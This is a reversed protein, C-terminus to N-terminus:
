HFPIWAVQRLSTLNSALVGQEGVVYLVDGIVLSRELGFYDTAAPPHVSGVREIAGDDSVHYVAVDSTSSNERYMPVVILRDNAWWLFAHHDDEAPSVADNEYLRSRLTPTAPTSVDFVSLQEGLPHAMANVRRGLGFLLGNGLPHLYASYGTVELHSVERPRTPDSLDLVYLPDIQRFTVVYGIDDLFRVGYIREGRGLGRVQGVQVLAHGVPRLVTVRNDSLTKPAGGEGPAPTAVGVTTAVRLDGHYESLSYQDVIQGPVVGSGVYSPAAPASLDFAHIRTTSPLGYPAMKAALAGYMPTPQWDNTALYLGKTSAYVVGATGLITTQRVSAEDAPDFSVVDVTSVGQPKASHWTADCAPAFTHRGPTTIVPPLWDALASGKVVARNHATARTQARSSPGNPMRFPLNPWRQVVLVVRGALMRADVEGGPVRFTRVVQPHDPDALSVVTAVTLPGQTAIPGAPEAVVTPGIVVALSGALFLQADGAYQGLALFGAAHPAGGDVTMVQLGFPQHRVIVLLHGDTKALDPEDVGAEQNNTTSFSGTSAGPAAPAAVADVAGLAGAASKEMALAGPATQLGFQFGGRGWFGGNLGYAGVEKAAEAKVAALLGDCDDFTTLAALQASPVPRPIPASHHAERVASSCGSVALSTAVATSVVIRLAPM